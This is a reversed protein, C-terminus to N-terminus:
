QLLIGDDHRRYFRHTPGPHLCERGDEGKSAIQGVDTSATVLIDFFCIWALPSKVDGQTFGRAPSFGIARIAQHHDTDKAKSM